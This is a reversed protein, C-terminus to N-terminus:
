AALLEEEAEATRRGLSALELSPVGDLDLRASSIFVLALKFNGCAEWFRLAEPDVPTAARRRTPRSWSRAPESAAWRCPTTASAGPACASGASIRSRTASTRRAGLRPHRARRDRRLDRQRRPLRRAGARPARPEPARAECGARRWISCRTRSSRSGRSRRRSRASDGARARASGPRRGRGARRLEPTPSTSARPDAGPDRRARRGARRADGRLRPRAASAAAADRGRRPGDPLVARRARSADRAAGTRRAAGARRGAAAARLVRFELAATARASAAPRIARAAGAPAARAGAGGLEVELSWLERSAGGALRRLSGVRVEGPALSTQAAVFDRLRATM